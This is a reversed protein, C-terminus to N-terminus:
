RAVEPAGARTVAAWVEAPTDWGRIALGAWGAAQLGALTGLALHEQSRRADDDRSPPPVLVLAIGTAGHQRLCSLDRTAADDMGGVLAILVGGGSTVDHAAHLVAGLTMVPHLQIQALTLLVTGLDTDLRTGTDSTPDATLLTVEHHLADLHSAISAAMTVAWEFSSSRGTGTHASERSDLLVVARRKAPRDEQRVMLQGTRATAPWHIRRLDDGDRYERVIQDDEGHLAVRNPVGGESGLARGLRQGSSLPHITPLVLLAGVGPISTPRSTLGFPDRVRIQVPGLRHLGRVHPRVAYRFSRSQGAGLPPLLFRPRDGLAYGLHEEALVLPSRRRERNAIRLTVVAREDVSVRPPATSRSVEFTLRHRRALLAALALAALLLAGIRSLDHLGLLLGALLLVVGASLFASGRSTLSHRSRSM